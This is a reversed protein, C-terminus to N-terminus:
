SRWNKKKHYGGVAQDGRVNGTHGHCIAIALADAVDDPQPTTKLQLLVRVMEQMQKKESRGYGTVALKVQMPTYEFVEVGNRAAAALCVGRAQAVGIVTTQNHYYFLKEIAMVEPHYTECIKHIADDILLLREAFKRHSDTAILGYDVVRFRDQQCDLVAYGTRAYGPDIGLIRM